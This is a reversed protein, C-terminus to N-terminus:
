LLGLVIGAILLYNELTLRKSPIQMSFFIITQCLHHYPIPNKMFGMHMLLPTLICANIQVEIVFSNELARDANSAQSAAILDM